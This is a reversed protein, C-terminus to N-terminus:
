RVNGWSISKLLANVTTADGTGKNDGNKKKSQGTGYGKNNGGNLVVRTSLQTTVRVVSVAVATAQPGLALLGKRM